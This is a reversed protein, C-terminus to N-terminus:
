IALSRNWDCTIVARLFSIFWTTNRTVSIPVTRKEIENNDLEIIHGIAEEQSPDSGTDDEEEPPFVCKAKKSIYRISFPSHSCLNLMYEDYKEYHDACALQTLPHILSLKRSKEGGVRRVNYDFPITWEKKTVINSFINIFLKRVNDDQMNEYFAENNLVLPLEYPLVETLLVRYKNNLDNTQKM